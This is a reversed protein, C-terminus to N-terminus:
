RVGGARARFGVIWGHAQDDILEAQREKLSTFAVTVDHEFTRPFNNYATHEAFDETEWRKIIVKYVEVHALFQQFSAPMTAGDILHSNEVIAREMQLNIPMFVETMWLRWQIIEDKTPPDSPNFFPVGPRCRSRFAAWAAGSAGNLSFLPGYLYELQDSLFKIRAKRTEIRVNNLHTGVFAVAVTVCISAIQIWLAPTMESPSPPM